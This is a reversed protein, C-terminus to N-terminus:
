MLMHEVTSHKEFIRTLMGDNDDDDDNDGDDDNGNDIM